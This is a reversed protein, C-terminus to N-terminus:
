WLVRAVHLHILVDVSENISCVLVALKYFHIVSTRNRCLVYISVIVQGGSAVSCVLKWQSQICVVAQCLHM